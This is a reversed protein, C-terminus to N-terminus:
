RAMKMEYSCTRAYEMANYTNACAGLRLINRELSLILKQPHEDKKSTNPLKVNRIKVAIGFKRFNQHTKTPGEMRTGRYCTSNKMVEETEM